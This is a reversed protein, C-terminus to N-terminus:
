MSMGRPQSSTPEPAILEKIKVIVKRAREELRKIFHQLENSVERSFESRGREVEECQGNISNSFEALKTDTEREFNDRREEFKRKFDHANNTFNRVSQEAGASLERVRRKQESYKEVNNSLKEQVRELDRSSYDRDDKFNKYILKYKERAGRHVARRADTITADIRKRIRDHELERKKRIKKIREMANTNPSLLIDHWRKVKSHEKQQLERSNDRSNPSPHLTSHIDLKYSSSNIDINSDDNLNNTLNDEISQTAQNDQENRKSVRESRGKARPKREKYRENNYLGRKKLATDIRQQIEYVEKRRSEVTESSKRERDGELEATIRKIDFNKGYILGKMRIAKKFGNPKISTYDKGERTVEGITNLFTKVDTNNKFRGDKVGQEIVKHIMAKAEANTTNTHIRGTSLLKRNAIDTPSVWDNKMNHKDVILNYTKEWGPPAINLSKGSQLEVCPSVIHIHGSGDKEGHWVAYYAYQNAELKAFAIAEFDNLLEEIEKPTPNDDKHWAIVASKYKNKFSLSDALETVFEPNGRLVKIEERVEGKHDNTQLLYILAQRASGSGRNLFKILM